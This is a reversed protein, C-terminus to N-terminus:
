GFARFYGLPATTGAVATRRSVPLSNSRLHVGVGELALAVDIRDNILLQSGCSATVARVERALTM